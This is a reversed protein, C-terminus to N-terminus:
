RSPGYFRRVSVNFTGASHQHFALAAQVYTHCNGCQATIRQGLEEFSCIPRECNVLIRFRAGCRCDILVENFPADFDLTPNRYLPVCMFERDYWEDKAGRERAPVSKRFVGDETKVFFMNDAM